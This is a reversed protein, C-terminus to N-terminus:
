IHLFEVQDVNAGICPADPKDLRALWLYPGDDGKAQLHVCYVVFVRGAPHRTGGHWERIPVKLQVRLGKTARDAEAALKKAWRNRTALWRKWNRVRSASTEQSYSM